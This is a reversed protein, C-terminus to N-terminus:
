RSIVAAAMRTPNRQQCRLAVCDRGMGSGVPGHRTAILGARESARPPDQVNWSSSSVTIMWIWVLAERRWRSRGRFRPRAAALFLHCAVPCNLAQWLRQHKNRRFRLCAPCIRTYQQKSGLGWWLHRQRQNLKTNRRGM